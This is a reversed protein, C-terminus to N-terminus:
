FPGPGSPPDVFLRNRVVNLDTNRILGDGNLDAFIDFTGSPLDNFLQGRVINVDANRIQGDGDTDGVAVVFRFQFDNGAPGSSPFASVSETWAGALKNGALDTIATASSGDLDLLIRDTDINSALTIRAVTPSAMAVGSVGYVPVNIGRVGVQAATVATVPESFQVYITDLNSWPMSALQGAGTQAPYGFNANGAAARFAPTWASSDFFVGAIKPPTTDPLPAGVIRYIQGGLDVAYMRGLNDEGFSSLSFTGIVGVSNMETSRDQFNTLLSGNYRFSFIKGNVYDGFIYTGDLSQGNDLIDGGRYVYGGTISGTGQPMSAHTYDYIPGIANPPASDGVGPNDGSGELARWGFNQGGPSGAVIFDIEERTDQGVDGIYLNGTGRDFSNRFPNRLGYAFITRTILNADTAFPNTPPITYGPSATNPNIRLMKGLYRTLNQANQLPDNGSGGDGTGIYLLNDPGFGIWGGKHNTFNPQQFTIINARSGTNVVGGNVTFRDVRTDGGSTAGGNSAVYNIYLFGNGNNFGPGFAMGLLGQEGGTLLQGAGLVTPLDLFPTGGIAGTSTDLTRILGGKQVVYVLNPNAAGPAATLFLPQSFGSGVQQLTLQASASTTTVALVFLALLARRIM